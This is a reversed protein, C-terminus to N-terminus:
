HTRLPHGPDQSITLAGSNAARITAECTMAQLEAEIADIAEAANDLRQGLKARAATSTSNLDNTHHFAWYLLITHDLLKDQITVSTANLEYLQGRFGKLLGLVLNQEQRVLMVDGDRVARAGVLLTQTENMLRDLKAGHSGVAVLLYLTSAAFSVCGLVALSLLAGKAGLTCRGGERTRRRTLLGGRRRVPFRPDDQM